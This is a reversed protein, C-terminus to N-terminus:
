WALMFGRGGASTLRRTTVLVCAATRQLPSLVAAAWSAVVAAMKPSRTAWVTMEVRRAQTARRLMTRCSPAWFPACPVRGNCVHYMLLARSCVSLFCFVWLLHVHALSSVPPFFWCLLVLLLWLLLLLLLLMHFVGVSFSFACGCGCVCRVKPPLPGHEVYRLYAPVVVDRGFEQSYGKLVGVRLGDLLLQSVAFLLELLEASM